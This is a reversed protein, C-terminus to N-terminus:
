KRNSWEHHTSDISVYVQHVVPAIRNYRSYWQQQQLPLGLFLVSAKQLDKCLWNHQHMNAVTHWLDAEELDVVEVVM